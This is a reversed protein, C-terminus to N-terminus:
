PAFPGHPRAIPATQRATAPTNQAELFKGLVIRAQTSYTHKGSIVVTTKDVRLPAQYKKGQTEFLDDSISQKYLDGARKASRKTSRQKATPTDTQVVVTLVIYGAKKAQTALAMRSVRSNYGGDLVFTKGTKFLEATMMDAVQKVVVNESDNYTHHAFLMWRIKDESVLAVDLSTAFQTAFFSKGSGPLGVVVVALPSSLTTKDM